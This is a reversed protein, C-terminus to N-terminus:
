NKPVVVLKLDRGETVTQTITVAVGLEVPNESIADWFVEIGNLKVKGLLPPDIREVVVATKGIFAKDMVAQRELPAKVDDNYISRSWPVLTFAGLLFLGFGLWHKELHILARAALCVPLLALLPWCAKTTSTMGVCWAVLALALLVPLVVVFTFRIKPKNESLDAIITFLFYLVLPLAILLPFPTFKAMASVGAYFFHEGWSYRGTVLAWIILLTVVCWILFLIFTM